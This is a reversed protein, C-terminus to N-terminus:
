RYDEQSVHPPGFTSVAMGMLIFLLVAIAVMSPSPPEWIGGNKVWTALMQVFIFGCLGVLLGFIALPKSGRHSLLSVVLAVVAMGAPAVLEAPSSLTTRAVTWVTQASIGMVIGASVVREAFWGLLVTALAALPTLGYGALAVGSVPAFTLAPMLLAPAALDHVRGVRYWWLGLAVGVVLGIALAVHPQVEPIAGMSINLGMDSVDVANSGATNGGLMALAREVSLTSVSAGGVITALTLGLVALAAGLPPLAAGAVAAVLAPALRHPLSSFGLCPAICWGLWALSAAVLARTCFTGLWPAKEELTLRRGHFVTDPAEDDTLQGLLDRLSAQGQDPDGLVPVCEDAFEAISTTRYAPDSELAGLLSSAAEPPLTGALKALTTGRSGGKHILALSEEATRAAFPNKGTLAQLVVVALAFLDCREDVLGGQIQEPPMYGVTGGRADAYGAASALTAMGFDGLKVIGKRDFMINAPKIDLHLVGNEHAYDLADALSDLVYAAEDPLLTGGEVRALLEQLTVGDVFEMVLYAYDYDAEFDFVTVINPHSLMCSTRAESLAEQITSASTAAGPASLPICKIAVRRQLRTDWCVEVTGFGGEARSELVRYRNLILGSPEEPSHEHSDQGYANPSAVAQRRLM